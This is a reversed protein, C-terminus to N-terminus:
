DLYGLDRLRAAVAADEEETYSRPPVAAVSPEAQWPLGMARALERAVEVLSGPM